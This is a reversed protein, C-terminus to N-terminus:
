TGISKQRDDIVAITDVQVTVPDSGSDKWVFIQNSQGPTYELVIQSRESEGAATGVNIQVGTASSYFSDTVGIFVTASSGGSDLSVSVSLQVKWNVRPGTSEWDIPAWPYIKADTNPTTQLDGIYAIQPNVPTVRGAGDYICEFVEYTSGSDRRMCIFGIRRYIDWGSPINACDQDSDFCVDFAAPDTSKGIAFVFFFRQELTFTTGTGSGTAKSSLYVSGDSGTGRDVIKVLYAGPIGSGSIIDGNQLKADDALPISSIETSGVSTDGTFQYIFDKNGPAWGGGNNGASFTEFDTQAANLLYKRLSTTAKILYQGTSDMCQGSQVTIGRGGFCFLRMDFLHGPAQITQVDSKLQDLADTVTSGSVTSDNAFDDSGANDILDTLTAGPVSSDNAIDDTGLNDIKTDLNDLADDTFAGPVGSDNVIRSAELKNDIATELQTMSAFSEADTNLAIGEGRIVNCIEEQIANMETHRLQTADYSGLLEDRYIDISADYAGVGTGKSDANTCRHM